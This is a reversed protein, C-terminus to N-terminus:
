RKPSAWCCHRALSLNQPVKAQTAAGGHRGSRHDELPRFHLRDVDIAFGTSVPRGDPCNWRPRMVATGYQREATYESGATPNAWVASRAVVRARMYVTSGACGVTQSQPLPPFDERDVINCPKNARRRTLNLERPPVIIGSKDIRVPMSASPSAQLRQVQAPGHRRPFQRDDALRYSWLGPSPNSPVRSWFLQAPFLKGRRSKGRRRRLIRHVVPRRVRRNPM